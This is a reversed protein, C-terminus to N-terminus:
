LYMKINDECRRRPRGMPRKVEPTQLPLKSTWSVKNEMDMQEFTIAEERITVKTMCMHGANVLKDFYAKRTKLYKNKKWILTGNKNIITNCTTEKMPKYENKMIALFINTNV